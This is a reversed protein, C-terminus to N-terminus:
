LHSDYGFDIRGEGAGNIQWLFISGHEHSSDRNFGIIQDCAVRGMKSFIKSLGYIADLNTPRSIIEGFRQPLFFLYKVERRIAILQQQGWGSNAGM